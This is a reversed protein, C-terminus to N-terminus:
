EKKYDRHVLTQGDVVWAIGLTQFEDAWKMVIAPAVGLSRAIERISMEGHEEVMLFAKTKETSDMLDLYGELTEQTHALKAKTENLDNTTRQLNASAREFETKLRELERAKDGSEYSRLRARIEEIETLRTATKAKEDELQRVKTKLDGIELDKKAIQDSYMKGKQEATIARAEVENVKEQLLDRSAELTKVTSRLETLAELDAQPAAKLKALDEELEENIVKLLANDKRLNEIESNRTEVKQQSISLEQSLEDIRRELIKMKEAIDKPVEVKPKLGLESSLFEVETTSRQTYDDINAKLNSLEEYTVKMAEKLGETLDRVKELIPTSMGSTLSEEVKHFEQDVIPKVDNDIYTVQLNTKAARKSRTVIDGRMSVLNGKLGVLFSLVVPVLDREIRDISSDVTMINRELHGISDQLREISKDIEMRRRVQDASEVRMVDSTMRGSDILEQRMEDDVGLETLLEDVVGKDGTPKKDPEKAM